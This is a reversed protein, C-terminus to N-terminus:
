PSEELNSLKPSISTATLFAAIGPMRSEIRASSCPQAFSYRRIAAEEDLV